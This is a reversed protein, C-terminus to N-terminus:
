KPKERIWQPDFNYVCASICVYDGESTTGWTYWKQNGDVLKQCMQPQINSIQSNEKASITSNM